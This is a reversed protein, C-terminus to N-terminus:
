SVEIFEAILKVPQNEKDFGIYCAYFGEGHGAEYAFIMNPENPNPQLLNYQHIMEGEENFFESHFFEDYIGLFDDGKQTYLNNELNNLLNQTDFDMLCAMRSEVPYGFIEGKSLKKVNQGECVALEWHHVECDSFNIETYAIKDSTIEKHVLVLFDGKPFDTVFPQKDNTIIPDCAVIKGSSLHIEGVEFSELLPNEVFNKGFINHLNEFHQM